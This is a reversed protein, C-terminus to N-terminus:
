RSQILQAVRQHSLGMIRGADRVTLGCVDVLRTAVDRSLTNVEAQVDEAVRRAKALQELEVRVDAMAQAPTLQLDEIEVAFSDPPVDLMLAIAERAMAEAQDLRRAQTHVGPVEPVEVAWWDGSRICQIGYKTLAVM